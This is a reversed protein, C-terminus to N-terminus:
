YRHFVGSRSYWDVERLYTNDGLWLMADPDKAHIAQFIQYDGGYPTGPRDYKPENVYACSGVAVTFTPPDTRYQWLAQTQFETPYSLSVAQDNILLQYGYTVGPELGTVSIHATFAEDATTQYTTSLQREAAAEKPWYAFQVEAPETTQVWLMVETMESYAPMPGSQLLERQGFLPATLLAIWLSFIITRM